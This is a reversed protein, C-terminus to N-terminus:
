EQSHEISEKKYTLVEDYYEGDMLSRKKQLNLVELKEADYYDSLDRKCDLFYLVYDPVYTKGFIM